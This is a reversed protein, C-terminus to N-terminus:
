VPFLIDETPVACHDDFNANVIAATPDDTPNPFRQLNEASSPVFPPAAKRIM